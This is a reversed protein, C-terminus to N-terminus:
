QPRITLQYVFDPRADGRWDLVRVYFTTNTNPAGPVQFELYSSPGTGLEKDDNICADDFAQPTLDKVVPVGAPADDDALDRCTTFRQGSGNLIEIVTDVPSPTHNPEATEVIIVSGGAASLKYYDVDPTTVDPADNYPSLTAMFSLSTGAYPLQTAAGITDNRQGPSLVVLLSLDAVTSLQPYSSDRVTVVLSSAGPASATGSIQGSGSSLQLGSPPGPLAISWSYPTTGGTAVLTQLYPRSVVAPFFATTHISIAPPSTGGTVSLSFAESDSQSGSDQVQATFTCGGAQTPTGSIVGVSSQTALTLGSALEGSTITWSYPATGGSAQLTTSYSQGATAAPITTTTIQLRTPSSPPPTPPPTM